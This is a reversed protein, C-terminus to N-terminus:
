QAHRCFKDVRKLDFGSRQADIQAPNREAERADKNAPITRMAATAAINESEPLVDKEFIFGHKMKSSSSGPSYNLARIGSM